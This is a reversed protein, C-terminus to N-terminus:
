PRAVSTPTLLVFYADAARLQDLITQFWPEGIAINGPKSQFVSIGEESRLTTHFLDALPKDTAAHSLFVTPL